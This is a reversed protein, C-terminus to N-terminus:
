KVRIKDKIKAYMADGIGKVETIEEISRFNGNQERYEIIRKAIAPGVGSLTTLDNETAININVVGNTDVATQPATGEPCTTINGTTEPTTATIEPTATKDDVSKKVVQDGQPRTSAIANYAFYIGLVAVLIFAFVGAILSRRDIEFRIKKHTNLEDEIDAFAEFNQSTGAHGQAGLTAERLIDRVTSNVEQPQSTTTSDLKEDEM